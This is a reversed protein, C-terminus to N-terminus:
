VVSEIRGRRPGSTQTPTLLVTMEEGDNKCVNQYKVDSSSLLRRKELAEEELGIGEDASSSSRHYGVWAAAACMDEETESVGQAINQLAENSRKLAEDYSPPLDPQLHSTEVVIGDLAEGPYEM